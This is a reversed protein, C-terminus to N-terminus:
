LDGERLPGPKSFLTELGQKRRTFVIAYTGDRDIVMQPGHAKAADLVERIRAEAEDRQWTKTM